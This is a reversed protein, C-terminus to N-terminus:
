YLMEAMGPLELRGADGGRFARLERPDADDNLRFLAPDTIRTLMAYYGRVGRVYHVPEWGRAYGFRTHQYWEPDALLPLHARVDPWSNPDGGESETINRADRLHGLGVNYAALAMWTRTPQEIDDPLRDLLSRFYRAGGMISETPDMRNDVGMQRATPQTLMMMGRVGTASIADPRWHSEQYSIAALMRWDLDYQAAAEEFTPRYQPLRETVERLFVRAGVYDFGTLYGHYRERVFALKGSEEAESFFTQAADYLSRDDTRLFAWALSQPDDFTFAVRLEPYYSQNLALENSDVITFDIDRRWVGYLLDQVGMDQTASWNVEIGNGNLARLREASQSHALVKFATDRFKALEQPSEPHPEQNRYILHQDVEAYSTSFRFREQGGDSVSLGGAAVHATRSALAQYMQTKNRAIILRLEVGLHNAFARALDYDMGESGDNTKYLTSPGLRTVVVLEGADQVQELLSQQQLQGTIALGGLALAMAAILARLVTHAM